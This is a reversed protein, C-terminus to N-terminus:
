ARRRRLQVWKVLQWACLAAFGAVLLGMFWSPEEATTDLVWPALGDPRSVGSPWPRAIGSLAKGALRVPDAGAPLFAAVHGQATRVVALRASDQGAPLPLLGVKLVHTTTREVGSLEVEAATVEVWRDVIASASATGAEALRLPGRVADAFEGSKAVLLGLSLLLLAGAALPNTPEDEAPAAPPPPAAPPTPEAPESM